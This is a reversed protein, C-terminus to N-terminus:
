YFLEEKNSVEEGIDIEKGVWIKNYIIDKVLGM